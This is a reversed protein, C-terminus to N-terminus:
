NMNGCWWLTGEQDVGTGASTRNGIDNYAYGFQQGRALIGGDWHKRGDAVQGLADYQHKLQLHQRTEVPPSPWKCNLGSRTPHPASSFSTDKPNLWM